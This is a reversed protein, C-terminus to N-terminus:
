NGEWTVTFSDGSSNLDSPYAKVTGSRTTMTIPQNAWSSSSITGSQGNITVGANTFTNTGFDALPLTGGSFPAEVIWEASQRRAQRLTQTTQFSWGHQSNMDDIALLFQGNGVYKVTASMVDGAQVTYTITNSAKPYMEYWAYYRAQGNIFDQETGIQEVTNSSNGDIGLWTASYGASSASSTVAPVTWQGHVESVSGKQPKTFSTQVVYGAWNLSTGARLAVRPPATSQGTLPAMYAPSMGGALTLVMVLAFLLRKM